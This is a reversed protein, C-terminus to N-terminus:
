DTQCCSAGAGALYGTVEGASWAMVYLLILPASLLFNTRQFRNTFVSRVIRLFLLAPLTPSLCLLEIRKTAKLAAVRRAGYCRGHRYRLPVYEWTGRQQNQTVGTGPLLEFHIGERGLGDNFEAEWFGEEIMPLRDFILHRPYCANNGPLGRAPGCARTPLFAAYRSFYQAWGARTDRGNAVTGGCVTGSRRQCEEVINRLWDEPFTCHDETIVIWEGRTALVADRRLQPVGAPGTALLIRVGAPALATTPDLDAIAAIVEADLDKAQGALQELTRSVTGQARRIPVIVSVTLRSM